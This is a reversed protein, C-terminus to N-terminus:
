FFTSIKLFAVGGMFLCGWLYVGGYIFVGMFVVGPGSFFSGQPQLLSFVTNFFVTQLFVTNRMIYDM